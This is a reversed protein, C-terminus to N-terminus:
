ASAARERHAAAARADFRAAALASGASGYQRLSRWRILGPQLSPRPMARDVAPGRRAALGRVGDDPIAPM